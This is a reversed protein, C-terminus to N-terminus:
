LSLFGSKPSILLRITAGWSSPGGPKLIGKMGALDEGLVFIPRIKSFGHGRIKAASDDVLGM